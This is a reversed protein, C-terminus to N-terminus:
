GVDVFPVLSFDSAVELLSDKLALANDIQVVVLESGDIVSILRRWIIYAFVYFVSSTPLYFIIGDGRCEM